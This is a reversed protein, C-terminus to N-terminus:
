SRVKQNFHRYSTDRARRARRLGEEAIDEQTYPARPPRFDGRGIEYAMRLGAAVFGWLLLTAIWGSM